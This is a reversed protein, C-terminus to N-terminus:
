APSPLNERTLRNEIFRYRKVYTKKVGDAALEKLLDDRLSTSLCVYKNGDPTLVSWVDTFIACFLIQAYPDHPNEKPYVFAHDREPNMLADLWDHVQRGSLDIQMTEGDSDNVLLDVYAITDVHATIFPALVPLHARTVDLLNFIRCDHLGVLLANMHTEAHIVAAESAEDYNLYPEIRM